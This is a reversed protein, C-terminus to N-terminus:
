INKRQAIDFCVIGFALYPETLWDTCLIQKMNGVPEALWLLIIYELMLKFTLYTEFVERCM